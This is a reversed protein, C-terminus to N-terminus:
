MQPDAIGMGLGPGIKKLSRIFAHASETDNRAYIIVWSNIPVATLLRNQRMGSMWDAKDPHYSLQFLVGSLM